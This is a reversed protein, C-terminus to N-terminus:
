DNVGTADEYRNQRIIAGTNEDEYGPRVSSGYTGRPMTAYPEAPYRENFPYANNGYNSGSPDSQNWLSPNALDPSGEGALAATSLTSLTLAAALALTKAMTM